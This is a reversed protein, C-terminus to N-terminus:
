GGRRKDDLIRHAEIQRMGSPLGPGYDLRKAKAIIALWFDDFPCTDAMSMLWADDRLRDVIQRAM